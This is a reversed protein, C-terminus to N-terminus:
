TLSSMHHSVTRPQVATRQEGTCNDGARGQGNAQRAPCQGGRRLLPQAPGADVAEPQPIELDRRDQVPGNLQVPRMRDEALVGSLLFDRRQRHRIEQRRVPHFDREGHCHDIGACRQDQEVAAVTGPPPGIGPPQALKQGPGPDRGPLDVDDGQGMEVAVM